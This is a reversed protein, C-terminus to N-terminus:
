AKIAPYCAGIVYAIAGLVTLCWITVANFRYVWKRGAEDFYKGPDFLFHLRVHYKRRLLIAFPGTPQPPIELLHGNLKRSLVALAVASLIFAWVLTSPLDANDCM